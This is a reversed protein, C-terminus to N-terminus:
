AAPQKKSEVLAAIDAITGFHDPVIDEEDIVVGCRDELFNVLELLGTSDLVARELLPYDDTLGDSVSASLEDTIFRRIQDTINM